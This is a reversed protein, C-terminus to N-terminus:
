TYALPPLDRASLPHDLSLLTPRLTPIPSGSKQLLFALAPKKAIATLMTMSYPIDQNKQISRRKTITLSILLLVPMPHEFEEHLSM